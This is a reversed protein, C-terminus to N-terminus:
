VEDYSMLIEGKDKYFHYNEGLPNPNVLSQVSKLKYVKEYVDSLLLFYLEAILRIQLQSSSDPPFLEPGAKRTLRIQKLDQDMEKRTKEDYIDTRHAAYSRIKALTKIDAVTDDSLWKLGNLVKLKTELRSITTKSSDNEILIEFIEDVLFEVYAHLIILEARVEGKLASIERIM